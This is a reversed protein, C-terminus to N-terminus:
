QVTGSKMKCPLEVSKPDDARGATSISLRLGCLKCKVVYDGIRQAPYPLQVLCSPKADTTVDVGNPYRPDPACQPERGGDRWLIVFQNTM